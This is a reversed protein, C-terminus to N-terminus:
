SLSFGRSADRPRLAPDAEIERPRATSMPEAVKQESGATSASRAADDDVREEYREIQRELIDVDRTEVLRAPRERGVVVLPQERRRIEPVGHQTVRLSTTMTVVKQKRSPSPVASRTLLRKLPREIARSRTASGHATGSTIATTIKAQIKSEDKPRIFQSKM